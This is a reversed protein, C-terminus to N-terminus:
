PQHAVFQGRGLGVNGHRLVDFFGRGRETDYQVVVYYYDDAAIAMGTQAVKSFDLQQRRRRQEIAGGPDAPRRRDCFLV